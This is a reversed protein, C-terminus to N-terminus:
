EEPDNADNLHTLVQYPFATLANSIFAGHFLYNVAINKLRYEPEFTDPDRYATIFNLIIEILFLLEISEVVLRM